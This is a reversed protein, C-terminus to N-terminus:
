FLVRSRRQSSLDQERHVPRYRSATLARDGCGHLVFILLLLRRLVRLLYDGDIISGFRMSNVYETTCLIQSNKKRKHM